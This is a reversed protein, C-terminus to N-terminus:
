EQMMSPGTYVARPRYRLRHKYEEIAHALWGAIRSVAFVTEGARPIWDLARTLTAVGFDVNPRPLNREAAISAVADAAVLAPAHPALRRAHDVVVRARPDGDPYLPQGLGPIREGRALWEGVVTGADAAAEGEALLREALASAGGHYAGSLTALGASVAAYPDARFSAAIRVTATSAALEHDALLVMVAELAALEGGSPPRRALVAWLRRAMGAALPPRGGRRPLLAVLTALLHRGVDAVAEPRLDTRLPDHAALLPVAARLHAMPPAGEPLADALSREIGVARGDPTWPEPDAPLSATWLLEAVQEFTATASLEIPDRGRYWYRGDAILTVGSEIVVDPRRGSGRGRGRRALDDLQAPDFWSGREGPRRHSTLSGRSVYAYLTAPKVGLLEAAMAAPVLGRDQRDHDDRPAPAM